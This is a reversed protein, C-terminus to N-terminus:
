QKVSYGTKNLNEKRDVITYFCGCFIYYAQCTKTVGL